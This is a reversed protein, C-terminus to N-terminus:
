LSFRIFVFDHLSFLLLFSVVFDDVEIRIVVAVTLFIHKRGHVLITLNIIIIFLHRVLQARIVRILM